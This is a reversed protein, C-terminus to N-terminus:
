RPTGEDPLEAADGRRSRLWILLVGVLIALGGGWSLSHGLAANDDIVWLGLMAMFIGGYILVWTLKELRVTKMENTGTEGSLRM